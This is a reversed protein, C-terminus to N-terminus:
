RRIKITNRHNTIRELLIEVMSESKTQIANVIVNLDQILDKEQYSCGGFQCPIEDMKDLIRRFIIDKRDVKSFSLKMLIKSFGLWSTIRTKIRLKYRITKIICNFHKRIFNGKIDRDSILVDYINKKKKIPGSQRQGNSSRTHMKFAFIIVFRELKLGLVWYIFALCSEFCNFRDLM